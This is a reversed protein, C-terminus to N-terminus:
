KKEDPSDAAAEKVGKRFEKITRGLASGLEPLKRPGFILLAILLILLLEPFGISPL